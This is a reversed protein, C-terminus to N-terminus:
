GARLEELDTSSRLVLLGAGVAVLMAVLATAGLLLLGAWPVPVALVVEHQVVFETFTM